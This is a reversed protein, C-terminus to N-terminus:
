SAQGMILEFAGIWLIAWVVLGWVVTRSLSDLMRRNASSDYGGIQGLASLEVFGVIIIFVVWASGIDDRGPRTVFRFVGDAFHPAVAMFWLMPISFLANARECRALRKAARPAEPTASRGAQRQEASLVLVKEAPAIVAWVNVLMVIGLVSGFGVATGRPSSLYELYDGDLPDQFWLILVGTFATAAASWCRWAMAKASILRLVDARVPDDMVPFAAAQVANFYVLLGIWAAGALYHGWRAFLQGAGQPGFWDTVIEM